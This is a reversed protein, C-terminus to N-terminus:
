HNGFACKSADGNGMLENYLTWPGGKKVVFTSIMDAVESKLGKNEKDLEDVAPCITRFEDTPVGCIDLLSDLLM